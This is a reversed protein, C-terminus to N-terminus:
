EVRKENEESKMRLRMGIVWTTAGRRLGYNIVKNVPEPRTPPGAHRTTTTAAPPSAAFTLSCLPASVIIAQNGPFTVSPHVIILCRSFKDQLWQAFVQGKTDIKHRGEDERARTEAEKEANKRRTKTKTDGEMEACKNVCKDRKKAKREM